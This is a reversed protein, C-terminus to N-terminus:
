AALTQRIAEVIQRPRLELDAATFRLLRWKRGVIQNQRALDSQWNPTPTHYRIGDIEIALRAQVYAFDVRAVLLGDGDRIEHQRVPQPLGSAVILVDFRSELVSEPVGAEKARRDLLQRLRANGRRREGLQELRSQLAPISTLSRRVADDLAGTLAADDCTAALDIVTRAADTTPIAALETTDRATLLMSEHWVVDQQYRRRHRLATVEITSRGFGPLGWLAAAARHSAVAPGVLCAALLRRHWSEPSGPVAYVGYDVALWQGSRVRYKVADRSFGAGQAQEATFLGYQRGALAVLAATRERASRPTRM